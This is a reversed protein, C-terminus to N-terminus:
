SHLGQVSTLVIERRDPYFTKNTKQVETDLDTSLDLTPLLSVNGPGRPIVISSLPDPREAGDVRVLSSYDEHNRLTWPDHRLSSRM